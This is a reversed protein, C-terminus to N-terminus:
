LRGEDDLWGEVAGFDAIRELLSDIRVAAHHGPLRAGYVRVRIVKGHRDALPIRHLREAGEIRGLPWETTLAITRGTAALALLVQGDDCEALEGYRGGAEAVAGDIAHRSVSQATPIALARGDLADVGLGDPVGGRVLPHDDRVYACIPPAILPTAVIGPPPPVPALAFDAGRYLMGYVEGHPVSVSTLLPDDDQLTSIFPGLLARVTGAAACIRMSAVRGAAVDSVAAALDDAQVLLSRIPEILAEAAPTLRLRRGQPVFLEIGLEGELVRLQRSLAPQAMRLSAAAETVTGEEVVALLYELRRLHLDVM